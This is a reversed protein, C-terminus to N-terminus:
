GLVPEESTVDCAHDIAKQFWLNPQHDILCAHELYVPHGLFSYRIILNLEPAICKETVFTNTRGQCTCIM